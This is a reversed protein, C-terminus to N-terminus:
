KLDLYHILKESLRELEKDSIDKKKKYVSVTSSDQTIWFDKKKEYYDSVTFDTAVIKQFANLTIYNIKTFYTDTQQGSKLLMYDPDQLITKTLSYAEKKTHIVTGLLNNIELPKPQEYLNHTMMLEDLLRYSFLATVQPKANGSKISEVALYDVIEKGSMRYIYPPHAPATLYLKLEHNFSFSLPIAAMDAKMPGKGWVSGFFTGLSLIGAVVVLSMKLNKNKITDFVSASLIAFYPFIPLIFRDARLISFFTLFIWPFISAWLILKLPSKKRLSLALGAVILCFFFIGLKTFTSLYYTLSYPSFPNRDRESIIQWMEGGVRHARFYGLVWYENHFYPYFSVLLAIFGAGLAYLVVNKNKYLKKQFARYIVYLFPGAIFVLAIWRTLLAVGVLLGFFLSHKKNQFLDSKVLFYLAWVCATTTATESYTYHIFYLPWGYFAFLGAGVFSAFKSLYQRALMYIGFITAIHLFVNTILGWSYANKLGFVLLFPLIALPYGPQRDPVVEMMEVPTTFTPHQLLRYYFAAKHMYLQEDWQPYQFTMASYRITSALLILSILLLAIPYKNNKIYAFYKIYHMLSITDNVPIIM